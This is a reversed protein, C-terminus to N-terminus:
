AGVIFLSVIAFGVFTSYRSWARDGRSAFRRAIVFAAAALAAFTPIANVGHITGHLTQPSGTLPAGPPYGRAPDTVFVGAIILGIGFVGVLRPGWVSAPGSRWVRSLGVALGLCLTGCIIFNAIQQWGEDSMALDSVMNRFADYGPRTVGEILFVVIFLLPGGIGGLLLWWAPRDVIAWRM